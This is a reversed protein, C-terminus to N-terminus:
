SQQKWSNYLLLGFMFFQTLSLFLIYGFIVWGNINASIYKYKTFDKLIYFSEVQSKIKELITNDFTSGLLTSELNRKLLDSETWGFVYASIIKNQKHRYCLIVDNKKGGLWYAEQYMCTNEPFKDPFGIMILNVKKTKGLEANLKDWEDIKVLKKAHGLLRQSVFWDEVEPYKYLNKKEKETVKVFNFLSKKGKIPNEWSSTEHIPIIKDSNIHSIYINHDGSYFGYKEEYQKQLAGSDKKLILYKEKKIEKRSEIDSHAEWYEQHTTYRTEYHSFVSTCSTSKGISSCQTRYIPVQYKEVWEPYHILKTIKGSVIQYDSKISGETISHFCFAASFAMCTCLMWEGFTLEKTRIWFYSGILVPILAIIYFIYM